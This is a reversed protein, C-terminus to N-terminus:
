RSRGPWRGRRHLSRLPPTGSSSPGSAPSRSLTAREGSARMETCSGRARDIAGQASPRRAGSPRGTGLFRNERPGRWTTRGPESATAASVAPASSSQARAEAPVVLLAAAFLALAAARACRRSRWRGPSAMPDSWPGTLMCMERSGVSILPVPIPSNGPGPTCRGHRRGPAAVDLWMASNRRPHDKASAHAAAGKAVSTAFRRTGNKWIAQSASVGRSRHRGM